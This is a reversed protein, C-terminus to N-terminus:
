TFGDFYDYKFIYGGGVCYSNSKGYQNFTGNSWFVKENNLKKEKDSYNIENMLGDFEYIKGKNM